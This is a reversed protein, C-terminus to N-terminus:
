ADCRRGEKGASARVHHVFVDELTADREEWEAAAAIEPPLSGGKALIRVSAGFIYADLIEPSGPGSRDLFGISDRIRAQMIRGADIADRLVHKPVPRASSMLAFLLNLLREARSYPQVGDETLNPTSTM